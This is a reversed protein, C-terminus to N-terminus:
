GGTYGWANVHTAMYDRGDNRYSRWYYLTGELRGRYSSGDVYWADTLYDDVDIASGKIIYFHSGLNWKNTTASTIKAKHTLINQNQAILQYGDSDLSITLTHQTPKVQIKELMKRYYEIRAEHDIEEAGDRQISGINLYYMHKAVQTCVHCIERPANLTYGDDSEETYEDWTEYHRSTWTNVFASSEYAANTIASLKDTADDPLQKEIHLVPIILGM